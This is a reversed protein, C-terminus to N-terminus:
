PKSVRRSRLAGTLLVLAPVFLAFALWSIAGIGVWTVAVGGLIAGASGGAFNMTTNCPVSLASLRPDIRVLHVQVGTFMLMSGAGWAALVLLALALSSHVLPWLLMAFLCAVLAGQVLRLAGVRDIFRMGLLSAVLGTVGIWGLLTGIMAPGAGLAERLQPAIYVYFSGQATAQILSVILLGRIRPSRLVERIAGANLQAFPLRAPVAMRVGVLAVLGILGFVFFTWRWGFLGGLWVGFPVGMIAALNFGLTTAVVAAGAREAPVLLASTGIATPVYSATGVGGLMRAAFLVALGPALAAMGQALVVVVLAFSLLTRRHVRVALIAVIPALVAATVQFAASLQGAVGISIDLDAAIENLLGGVSMNAGGHAFNGAALAILGATALREKKTVQTVDNSM